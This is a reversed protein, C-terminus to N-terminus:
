YDLESFGFVQEFIEDTPFLEFTIMPFLGAFLSQV